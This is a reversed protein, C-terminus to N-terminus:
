FWVSFGRREAHKLAKLLGRFDRDTVTLRTDTVFHGDEVNYKEFSENYAQLMSHDAVMFGSVFGITSVLLLFIGLYKGPESVLERLYRKRLPNKMNRVM